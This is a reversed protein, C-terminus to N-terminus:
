QQHKGGNQECQMHVCAHVAGHVRQVLQAALAVARQQGGGVEMLAVDLDLGLLSEQQLSHKENTPSPNIQTGRTHRGTAHRPSNRQQQNFTLTGQLLPICNWDCLSQADARNIAAGTAGTIILITHYIEGHLNKGSMIPLPPDLM